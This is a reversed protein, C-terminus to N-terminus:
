SAAEIVFPDGNLVANSTTGCVTAWRHLEVASVKRKGNEIKSIIPVGDSGFGMKEAMDAQSLSNAARIQRLRKALTEPNIDM